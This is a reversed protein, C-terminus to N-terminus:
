MWLCLQPEQTNFTILNYKQSKVLHFIKYVPGIQLDKIQSIELINTKFDKDEKLKKNLGLIKLNKNTAVLFIFGFLSDELFLMNSIREELTYTVLCYETELDWLKILMDQGGTAIIKDTIKNISNIASTHGKLFIKRGSALNSVRLVGSFTGFIIVPEDHKFDNLCIIKRVTGSYKFDKIKKCYPPNQNLDWLYVTSEKHGTALCFENVEDFKNLTLKISDMSMIKTDVPITMISIDQNLDWIKIISELSGGASAFFSPGKSKLYVMEEIFSNHENYSKIQGQSSNLNWVKIQGESNGTLIVDYKEKQQNSYDEMPLIVYVSDDIRFKITNSCDLKNIVKKHYDRALLYHKYFIRNQVNQLRKLELFQYNSIIIKILNKNLTKNTNTKSNAKNNKNMLINNESQNLYISM